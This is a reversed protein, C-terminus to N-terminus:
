VNKAAILGKMMDFTNGDPHIVMIKGSQRSRVKLFGHRDLGRIVAKENTDSLTVEERSHLWFRYYHKFFANEGENEYLDVYYQFKNLTNAIYDEQRIRLDAPLLDNICTTPKSNSLNLGSGITCITKDNITTANVILGGVKCTRGYYIDNPWKIKLPFNELEKRLSCIGSVIAVCFIHQIIGVNNSLSSGSSLMYNFTFMACGVPSLWQNGSRGKGKTQQRAVIVVPEEPMALALSKGIDMTTECVPIYLLAKGLRSTELRKFYIEDDFGHLHEARTRIEVPLLESSVEPLLGHKSIQKLLLKPKNGFPENFRMGEMDWPMRDYQFIFYGPTLSPIVVDTTIKISLRLLADAILTSGAHLLQESTADSFLASAHQAANEMYLLFPSDETKNLVVSYKHGGFLDRAHFTQNVLRSYSLAPRKLIARSLVSFSLM